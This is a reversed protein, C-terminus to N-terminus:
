LRLNIYWTNWPVIMNVVLGLVGLQDEQGQRYRQLLDLTVGNLDPHGHVLLVESIVGCFANQHSIDLPFSSKHHRLSSLIKGRM